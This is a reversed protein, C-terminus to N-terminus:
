PTFGVNTCGPVTRKKLIEELPNANHIDMQLLRALAIGQKGEFKMLKDGLGSRDIRSEILIFVSINGKLGSHKLLVFRIFLRNEGVDEAPGAPM